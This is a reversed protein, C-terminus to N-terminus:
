SRGNETSLYFLPTRHHFLHISFNNIERWLRFKQSQHSLTYLLNGQKFRSKAHLCKHKGGPFPVFLLFSLVFFVLKTTIKYYQHYYGTNNIGKMKNILVTLNGFNIKRRCFYDLIVSQDKNKGHFIVVPFLFFNAAMFLSFQSSCGLPLRACFEFTGLDCSFQM